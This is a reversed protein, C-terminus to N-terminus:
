GLLPLIFIHFTTLASITAAFGICGVVLAWILKKHTKEVIKVPTPEIFLEVPDQEPGIELKKQIKDKPAKFRNEM